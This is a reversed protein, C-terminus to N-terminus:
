LSHYAATAAVPSSSGGGVAALGSISPLIAVALRSISPLIAMALPLPWVRWMAAAGGARGAGARSRRVAEDSAPELPQPRVDALSGCAGCACQSRRRM